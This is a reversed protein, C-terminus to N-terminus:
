KLNKKSLDKVLESCLAHIKKVGEQDTVNERPFSVAGQLEALKMRARKVAPEDRLKEPLANLKTALYEIIAPQRLLQAGEKTYTKAVHSSILETGRVWAGVSVLAILDADGSTSFKNKVENQTAELEERLVDWKGDDAFDTLSKGRSTLEESVGLGKALAIIDKGINKVDQKSEAEVALYGDAVLTGLNLARQGRDPFDTPIPPRTKSSWDPKGVKGLAAMFEGPTPISFDDTRAAGKMQEPTLPTAAQGAAFVSGCLLALGAAFDRPRPFM